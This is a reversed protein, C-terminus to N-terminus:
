LITDLVFKVYFTVTGGSFNELCIYVTSNDAWGNAYYPNSAGVVALAPYFNSNDVSWALTTFCKAGYPNAVEHTVTVGNGVGYSLVDSEYVIKDTNRDSTFSYTDISM